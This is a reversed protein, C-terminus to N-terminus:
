DIIKELGDGRVKANSSLGNSQLSKRQKRRVIPPLVVHTLQAITKLSHHNCSVCRDEVDGIDWRFDLSLVAFLTGIWSSLGAGELCQLRLRFASDNQFCQFFM